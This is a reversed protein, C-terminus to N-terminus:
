SDEIPHGGAVIRLLKNEGRDSLGRGHVQVDGPLDADVDGLYDQVARNSEDSIQKSKSKRSGDFKGELIKHINEDNRIIWDFDAIWERDNQGTLFPSARARIVGQTFEALYAEPDKKRSQIRDLCKKRRDATLKRCELMPGRERNYVEMLVEPTLVIERARTSDEEEGIVNTIPPIPIPIPIPILTNTRLQELNNQSASMYQNLLVEPPIPTKRRHKDQKGDPTVASTNCYNHSDWGVWYGYIREEVTWLFLMGSRNFEQLTNSVVKPTVKPRKPYAKGKVTDPDANFCGWDDCLLLLRPFQDQSFESLRALTPSDLISEKLIRNPM